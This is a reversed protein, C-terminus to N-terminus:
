YITIHESSLADKYLKDELSKIFQRKNKNQLIERITNFVFPLPSKKGKIQYDKVFILYMFNCIFFVGFVTVSNKSFSLTM